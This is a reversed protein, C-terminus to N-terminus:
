FWIGVGITGNLSQCGIKNDGSAKVFVSESDDAMLNPDIMGQAFVELECADFEFTKGARLSLNTVAFHETGYFDSAWPVMGVQAGLTLGWDEFTYDYGLEIYSSYNQKPTLGEYKFDNGAVMTYWNVYLNHEEPLLDAFNYGLSLETTSSNDALEDLSWDSAKKWCFYNSGGFYYYHTLGLTVNFFTFSATFDIEPVFYTGDGMSIGAIETEKRFGWDSAGVSGWFGASFSTNEGEYGVTANPQFSLGGLYQGRWLYSSVLEAGAEYTFEVEAKASFVACIAILFVSLIKKM